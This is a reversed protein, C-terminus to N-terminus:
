GCQSLNIEGKLNSTDEVKKWEMVFHIMTINRRLSFLILKWQWGSRVLLLTCTLLFHSIM